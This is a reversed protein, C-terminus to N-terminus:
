KKEKISDIMWEEGVKSIGYKMEYGAKPFSTNLTGQLGRTTSGYYLPPSRFPKANQRDRLDELVLEKKSGYYKDVPMDIKGEKLIRRNLSEMWKKEDKIYGDSFLNFSKLNKLYLDVAEMNIGKISDGVITFCDKYSYLKAAAEPQNLQLYLATVNDSKYKYQAHTISVSLLLMGYVCLLRIM